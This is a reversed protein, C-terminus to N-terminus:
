KNFIMMIILVISVALLLFSITLIIVNANGGEISSDTDTLPDIGRERMRPKPGLDRGKEEEKESLYEHMDELNQDALNVAELTNNDSSTYTVKDEGAEKDIREIPGIESYADAIRYIIDNDFKVPNTFVFSYTPDKSNEKSGDYSIEVIRKDEQNRPREIKINIIHDKAYTNLVSLLLDVTPDYIEKINNIANKNEEKNLVNPKELVKEAKTIDKEKNNQELYKKAEIYSELEEIKKIKDTDIYYEKQKLEILLKEIKEEKKIQDENITKGLTNVRNSLSYLYERIIQPLEVKDDIQTLELYLDEEKLENSKYKEINISLRNYTIDEPNFANRFIELKSILDEKTNIM